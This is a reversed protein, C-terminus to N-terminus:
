YWEIRRYRARMVPEKEEIHKYANIRYGGSLAVSEMTKPLRKREPFLHPNMDEFSAYRDGHIAVM